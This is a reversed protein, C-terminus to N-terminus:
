EFGAGDQRKLQTVSKSSLQQITKVIWEWFLLGWIGGSFPISEGLIIWFVKRKGIKWSNQCINDLVRKGSLLPLVWLLERGLGLVTHWIFNMLKRFMFIAWLYVRLMSKSSHMMEDTDQKFCSDLFQRQLEHFSKSLVSCYWCGEGSREWVWSQWQVSDWYLEGRDSPVMWHQKWLVAINTFTCHYHWFQSRSHHATWVWEKSTNKLVSGMFYNPVLNLIVPSACFWSSFSQMSNRFFDRRGAEWVAIAKTQIVKVLVCRKGTLFWLVLYVLTFSGTLSCVNLECKIKLM